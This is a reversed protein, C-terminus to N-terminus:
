KIMISFNQSMCTMQQHGWHKQPCRKRRHFSSRLNNIKKLVTERTANHDFEKLKQLLDDYGKNKLIRNSYDPSKVKWLAAHLRFIDIFDWVFERESQKLNITIVGVFKREKGFEQTSQSTPRVSPGFDRQVQSVCRCNGTAAWLYRVRKSSKVVSM